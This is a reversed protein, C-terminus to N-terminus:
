RSVEHGREMDDRITSGSPIRPFGRTWVFWTLISVLDAYFNTAYNSIRSGMPLQRAKGTYFQYVDLGTHPHLFFGDVDMAGFKAKAELIKPISRNNVFLVHSGWYAPFSEGKAHYVNEAIKHIERPSGQCDFMIVDFPRAFKEVMERATDFFSSKCVFDDELVVTIGDEDVVDEIAKSNAIWLGVVGRIRNPQTSLYDTIGGRTYRAFEQPNGPDYVVGPVLRSPFPLKRLLREILRRRLSDDPLSIYRIHKIDM